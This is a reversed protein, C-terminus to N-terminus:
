KTTEDHVQYTGDLAKVAMHEMTEQWERGHNITKVIMIDAKECNKYLQEIGVSFSMAGGGGLGWTANAKM